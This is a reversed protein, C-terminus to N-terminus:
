CRASWRGARHGPRTGRAAQRVVTEPADQAVPQGLRVHVERQDLRGVRRGRQRDGLEVVITGRGVSEVRGVRRRGRERGLGHLGGERPARSRDMEARETEDEFGDRVHQRRRDRRDADLREDHEVRVAPRPDDAVAGGIEVPELPDQGAGIDDLDADVVEGVEGRIARRRSGRLREEIAARGDDEHGVTGPRDEDHGRRADGLERDRHDRDDIGDASAVGETATEEGAPDLAAGPTLVQGVALPDAVRDGEADRDRDPGALAGAGIRRATGIEGTCDAQGSGIANRGHWSRDAAEDRSAKAM